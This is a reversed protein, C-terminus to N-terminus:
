KGAGVSIVGNKVFSSVTRVLLTDVKEEIIEPLEIVDVKLNELQRAIEIKERFSFGIESCVLTKDAIIVKKM